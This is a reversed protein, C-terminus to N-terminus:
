VKMEAWSHLVRRCQNVAGGIGVLKRANEAEIGIAFQEIDVLLYFEGGFAVDVIIEGFAETKLVRDLEEVFAPMMELTVKECRGDRCLAKAKVLGSPTDVVVETVPESIPIIGSKVFRLLSDDVRNLYDKNDVMTAGPVDIVGSTIVKGTEGECHVEVM